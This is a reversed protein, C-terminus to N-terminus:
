TWISTIASFLELLLSEVLVIQSYLIANFFASFGGM